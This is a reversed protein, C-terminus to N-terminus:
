IFFIPWPSFFGCTNKKALATVFTGLEAIDLSNVLDWVPPSLCLSNKVSLITKWGEFLFGLVFQMSVLSCYVSNVNEQVQHQKQMSALGRAELRILCNRHRTCANTCVGWEFEHVHTRVYVRLTHTRADIHFVCVECTVCRESVCVCLVFIKRGTTVKCLGNPFASDLSYM